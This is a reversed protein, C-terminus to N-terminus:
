QRGPEKGERREESRTDYSEYIYSLGARGILKHDPTNRFRYSLGGGTTSRLAIDEFEDAELEQRVFWGVKKSFFSEYEIGGIIELDSSCVDSSWDRSF